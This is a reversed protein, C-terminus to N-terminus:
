LPPSDRSTQQIEGSKRFHTTSIGTPTLLVLLCSDEKCFPCSERSSSGFVAQFDQPPCTVSGTIELLHDLSPGAPTWGAQAGTLSANSKRGVPTKLHEESPDNVPAEYLKFYRRWWLSSYPCNTAFIRMLKNLASLLLSCPSM